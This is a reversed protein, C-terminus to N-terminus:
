LKEIQDGHLQMRVKRGLLDTLLHVVEQNEEIREVQANCGTFAGDNVRVEEGVQFKFPTRGAYVDLTEAAERKRIHAIGAASICALEEGFFVPGVVGALNHIDRVSIRGPGAVFVYGPLWPRPEWKGRGLWHRRQRQSLTNRPPLVFVKQMPIYVQFGELELWEKALEERRPEARIVMWSAPEPRFVVVPEPATIPRMAALARESISPKKVLFEGVSQMTM